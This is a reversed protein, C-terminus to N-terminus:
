FRMPQYRGRQSQASVRGAYRFPRAAGRCAEDAARAYGFLRVFPHKLYPSGPSLANARCILYAGYRFHRAIKTKHDEKGEYRHVVQIRLHRLEVYQTRQIEKARSKPHM